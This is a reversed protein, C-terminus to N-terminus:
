HSGEGFAIEVPEQIFHDVITITEGTGQVEVLLDNGTRSLAVDAPVIGELFYLVDGSGQITTNGDGLGFQYVDRGAGGILLDGDGSGGRLTDHDDGGSLQDTGAGGMIIDDGSGGSIITVMGERYYTMEMIALRKMM